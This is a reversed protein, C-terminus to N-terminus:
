ELKISRNGHQKEKIGRVFAEYAVRCLKDSEANEERPVWEFTIREFNNALEKARQHLKILRRARVAYEGRMQRIVLQSDGRVVLPGRHGQRLIYEMGKILATYEAVNNSVDDGWIGAGVFGGEEYLKEGNRYVLFGYTAIGGPNYPECLGDFMLIIREELMKSKQQDKITTNSRGVNIYREKNQPGQEPDGM